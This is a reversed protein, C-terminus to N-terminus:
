TMHDGAVLRAKYRFVEMKVDFVMQCQVVKYSIPVSKGDPLVKFAVKVYETEKCVADAWLNHGREADLTMAEEVTKHLEIGFEHSRKLCRRQRKRISDIVRYIKKSCM